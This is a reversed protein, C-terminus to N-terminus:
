EGKTSHTVCNTPSDLVTPLGNGPLPIPIPPSPPGPAATPHTHTTFIMDVFSKTVLQQGMQNGGLSVTGFAGPNLVIGGPTLEITATETALLTDASSIVVKGNTFQLNYTSTGSQFQWNVTDDSVTEEFSPSMGFSILPSKNFTRSSIYDGTGLYHKYDISDSLSSGHKSRLRYFTKDFDDGTSSLHGSSLSLAEDANEEDSYSWGKGPGIDINGGSLARLRFNEGKVPEGM